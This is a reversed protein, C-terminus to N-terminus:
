SDILAIQLIKGIEKSLGPKDMALLSDIKDRDEFLKILHNRINKEMQNKFPRFAKDVKLAQCEQILTEINHCVTEDLNSKIYEIFSKDPVQMLNLDHLLGNIYSRVKKDDWGSELLDSTGVRGYLQSVIHGVKAQFEPLLSLVRNQLLLDYHDTRFSFSLPLMAVMDEIFPSQKPLFFHSKQDSNNLLKSLKDKLQDLADKQMLRKDAILVPKLEDIALKQVIYKLSKVLCVNIHHLKPKRKATKVLDCSQTLVMVYRESPKERYEVKPYFEQFYANFQGGVKLIDGQLLSDQPQALEKSYIYPPVAIEIM